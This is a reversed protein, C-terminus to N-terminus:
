MWLYNIIHVMESWKNHTQLNINKTKKIKVKGDVIFFIDKCEIL